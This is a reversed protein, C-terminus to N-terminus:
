DKAVLPPHVSRVKQVTTTFALTILTHRVTLREGTLLLNEIRKSTLDSGKKQQLISSVALVTKNQILCAVQYIYWLSLCYWM